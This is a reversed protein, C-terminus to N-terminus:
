PRIAPYINAVLREDLPFLFFRQKGVKGRWGGIDGKTIHVKCPSRLAKVKEAQRVSVNVRIEQIVPVAKRFGLRELKMKCDLRFAFSVMKGDIENSM